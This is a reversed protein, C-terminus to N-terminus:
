FIRLSENLQNCVNEAPPLVTKSMVLRKPYLHPIPPAILHITKKQGAFDLDLTGEGYGTMNAPRVITLRIQGNDSIQDQLDHLGLRGGDFQYGALAMQGAGKERLTLIYEKRGPEIWVYKPYIALSKRSHDKPQQELLQEGQTAARALQEETVPPPMPPRAKLEAPSASEAPSSKGTNRVRYQVGLIRDDVLTGEPFAFDMATSDIPCNVKVEKVIHEGLIQNRYEVITYAIPVWLGNVRQWDLCTRHHYPRRDPSLYEKIVPIYDRDPDIWLRLWPAKDPTDYFQFEYVYLKKEPEYALTASNVRRLILDWEFDPGWIVLYLGPYDEM